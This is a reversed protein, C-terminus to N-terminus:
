NLSSVIIAKKGRSKRKAKWAVDGNGKRKRVIRERGNEM